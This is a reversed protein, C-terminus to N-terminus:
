VNPWEKGRTTARYVLDKLHGCFRALPDAEDGELVVVMLVDKLSSGRLSEVLTRRDDDDRRALVLYYEEPHRARGALHRMAEELKKLEGSGLGNSPHEEKVIWDWLGDVVDQFALEGFPDITRSGRRRVQFKALVERDLTEYAMPRGSTGAVLLEGIMTDSTPISLVSNTITVAQAAGDLALRPLLAAILEYLDDAYTVEGNDFFRGHLRNFADVLVTLETSLLADCLGKSKAAEWGSRWSACGDPLVRSDSPGFDCLTRAIDPKGELWSRVGERWEAFDRDSQALGAHEQFGQAALLRHAPTALIQRGDYCSTADGLVGVVIGGVFVPGGSFGLQRGLDVGNDVTLILKTSGEDCGFAGGGIADLRTWGTAGVDAARPYGRSEWTTTASLPEEAFLAFGSPPEDGELYKLVAADIEGREVSGAEAWVCQVTCRGEAYDEGWVLDRTEGPTGVVHGATLFTSAGIPYATGDVRDGGVDTMVRVFSSPRM